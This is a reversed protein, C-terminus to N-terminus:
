VTQTVVDVNNYSKNSLKHDVFHCCFKEGQTIKFVTYAFRVPIETIEALEWDNRQDGILIFKM